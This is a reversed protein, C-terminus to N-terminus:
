QAISNISKPNHGSDVSIGARPCSLRIVALPYLPFALVCHTGKKRSARLVSFVFSHETKSMEPSWKGQWFCM